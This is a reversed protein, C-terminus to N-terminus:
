VVKIYGSLVIGNALANVFEPDKADINKILHLNIHRGIEEEYKRLDPHREKKTVIALDVDSKGIDEGRVYSGFLVVAEPSNYFITLEELLGSARINYLNYLKKLMLFEENEVNATYQTTVRSKKRKLLEEKELKNLVKMAGAPSLGVLEAVERIYFSRTPSTFFLKLVKFRNSKTFM